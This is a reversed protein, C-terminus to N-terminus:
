LRRGRGEEFFVKRIGGALERTCLSCFKGSAISCGCRECKTDSATETPIEAEAKHLLDEVSEVHVGIEESLTQALERGKTQLYKRLKSFDDLTTHGCTKCLYQGKGVYYVRSKCMDCAEPRGSLMIAELNDM